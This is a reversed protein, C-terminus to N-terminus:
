QRVSWGLGPPIPPFAVEVLLEDPELATQYSFVFFDGAAIQRRGSPGAVTLTADLAVALAPLEATPDNHVLSGCVTGRTRIQPHGIHRLGDSLLPAGLALLEAQTAGAGVEVTGAQAVRVYRLEAIRGIDVVAEPA